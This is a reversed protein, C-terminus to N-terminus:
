INRLQNNEIVLVDASADSTMVIGGAVDEIFNQKIMGSSVHTRIQIADGGLGSIRNTLVHAREIEKSILGVDLVVGINDLLPQDSSPAFAGIDNGWVRTNDTAFNIANANTTVTNECIDVRSARLAPALTFGASLVSFESSGFLQNHAVRSDGLHLTLNALGIGRRLGVILNDEIYLGFTLTYARGAELNVHKGLSSSDDLDASISHVGAAGLLLNDTIRCEFLVGNLGIALGERGELGLQLLACREVRAMFTNQILLAMSASERVALAVVSFRSLNVDVCRSVRVAPGSGLYLLLTKLGHGEIQVSRAGSLLLPESGLLYEGPGLCVKGGAASVRDIAMQITFAGSNHSEASVCETCDCGGEDFEPPWFSRCDSVQDPFLVIALRCYHHIIGRPPAAVLKEVSADVTRAAFCWYEGTRYGGGSPTESFTVEVGDELVLTGGGAAIQIVGGNADVDDIVNNSADLVAGQQDWRRIRTHRSQPDVADFVGAPLAAELTITENVEDVTLVKRMQGPNQTLELHDDVVEIWDGPAFRRVRDRGVRAVTLVDLGGNIALVATKVSANDRSWKFTASSAPGGQHVEVRYLRNETGRFGGSPSLICPDDSAPVGVANTTLRGAPPATLEAWGPINEGPTACTTGRPVPFAKVQWVVQVRTTTDVGVAKEVLEPEQVHTVERKWVDLYVLLPSGRLEETLLEGANPLYPQHEFAIPHLGRQEELIRYYELDAPSELTVPRGDEDGGHNEALLGHVYARGRGITLSDGAIQIQFGSLTERPVVCRGVTDLMRVRFQRELEAVLENLDSDLMVRGQQMLVGFFDDLPDFTFRSYDGPM